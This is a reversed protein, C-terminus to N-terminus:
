NGNCIKKTNDDEKLKLQVVERILFDLLDVKNGKFCVFIEGRFKINLLTKPGEEIKKTSLYQQKTIKTSWKVLNM